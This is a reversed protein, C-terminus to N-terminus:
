EIIDLQALYNRIAKNLEDFKNNLEDTRHYDDMSLKEKEEQSAFIFVNWRRSFATIQKNSIALLEKYSNYFEEPIFAANANLSDQAEVIADISNKYHTNDLEKQAKEDALRQSVGSPILSNINKVMNFFNESLEKYISLEIDFKAKTIYNRNDLNSKYKELEKNLKMSYKEELRKAIIESSFKIVAVFIASFGGLATVASLAIKWIDNWEM